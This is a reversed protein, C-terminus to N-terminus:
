TEKGKDRIPSTSRRNNKKPRDNMGDEDMDDSERARKRLNQGYHKRGSEHDSDEDHEISPQPGISM